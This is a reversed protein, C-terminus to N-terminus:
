VSECTCLCNFNGMYFSCYDQFSYVFRGCLWKRLYQMRLKLHKVLKRQLPMCKKNYIKLIIDKIDLLIAGELPM